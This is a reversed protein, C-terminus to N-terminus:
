RDRGKGWAFYHAASAYSIGSFGCKSCKGDLRPWRRRVEEVTVGEVCAAKVDFTLGHDCKDLAPGRGNM